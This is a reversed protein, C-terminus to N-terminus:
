DLFAFNPESLTFGIEYDGLVNISAIEEYNPANESGNDPNMIAEITFKVDEATFPEGDHWKVNEKLRFTYTMAADDYTYSEALAPVLNGDGDRAMLGAFLLHKIECHENMIPNISDYDGSGYVLTSSNDTTGGCGSFLALVMTLALLLSLMKKMKDNGKWDQNFYM